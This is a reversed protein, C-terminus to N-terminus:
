QESESLSNNSSNINETDLQLNSEEEETQNRAIEEFSVSVSEEKSEEFVEDLKSPV